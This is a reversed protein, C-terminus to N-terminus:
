AASRQGEVSALMRAIQAAAFVRGTRSVRGEAALQAGIGRQSRGEAALAVARGITEQESPVAVLRDGERVFGYPVQGVCEGRAKKAALAAKTRARILGREYQAAGDIVTRMFQDAPAQGNGEGAASVVHSGCGEAAREVMATLVVDRAIRDRKAVVLVGARHERLSALAGVLAPREDIPTVSCVGQDVHWATVQIGERAAWAEIAARQAEPGLKQEDKSVRVYAVAVRANGTRTRKSMVLFTVCRETQTLFTNLSNCRM